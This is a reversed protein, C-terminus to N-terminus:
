YLLGMVACHHECFGETPSRDRAQRPTLRSESKLWSTCVFILLLLCLSAVAGQLLVSLGSEEGPLTWEIAMLALSWSLCDPKLAMTESELLFRKGLPYL